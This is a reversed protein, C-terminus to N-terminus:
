LGVQQDVQKKAIDGVVPLLYMEGQYAKFVLLVWLGIWALWLLTSVIFGLFPIFGFILNLVFTAVLLTFFAIVSQFAHFRVVKNEKEVFIMIIGSLLTFAYCLASAINEELGLSTKGSM